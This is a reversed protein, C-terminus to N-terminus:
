MANLEFIHTNIDDYRHYVFLSVSFEEINLKSDITLKRHRKAMALPDLM